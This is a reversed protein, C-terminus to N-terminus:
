RGPPKPKSQAEQMGKPAPVGMNDGDCVRMFEDFHEVLQAKSAAIRKEAAATKEAAEIM